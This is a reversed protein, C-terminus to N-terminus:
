EMILNRIDDINGQSTEFVTLTVEAWQHHDIWDYAIVTPCFAPLWVNTQCRRHSEGAAVVGFGEKELM